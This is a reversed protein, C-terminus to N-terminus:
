MSPALYIRLLKCSLDERACGRGLLLILDSRIRDSGFLVDHPIALDLKERNHAVFLIFLFFFLWHSDLDVQVIFHNVTKNKKNTQKNSVIVFTHQKELPCSQSVHLRELPLPLGTDSPLWSFRRMMKATPLTVWLSPNVLLASSKGSLQTQINSKPKEM